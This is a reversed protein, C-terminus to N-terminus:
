QSEQLQGDPAIERSIQSKPLWIWADDVAFALRYNNMLALTFGPGFYVTEYLWRGGETRPDHTLVAAGFAQSRLGDLLPELFGPTRKELLPLEQPDLVYPHQGALVAIVANETLLPKHTDVLAIVRQFFHPHVQSDWQLRHWLPVAALFTALALAYTGFQRQALTTRNALWVTFLIVVAIQVDLLHNSSTGPSGFIIATVVIAAIFFLAPLSQVLARSWALQFLPLLALIFFVLLGRDHAVRILLGLPGSMISIWTAGGSSLAQFIDLVRGQSALIMSSAVLLYGFCTAAALEWATRRSGTTVLWLLAVAFGFVTTEKASWALAFLISALVIQKHRPKPRVIVALGWVNLASALGDPHPFTLSWQCVAPALIAGAACAALWPEVGLAKMLHFCGMLLLIVAAGSLLYASLLAPIHLKLLVADLVFYLPFYRTGGYGWPGFLPRYFVGDKLDAALTIVVGASFNVYTDKTWCGWAHLATIIIILAVSGMLAARPGFLRVWNRNNDGISVEVLQPIAAGSHEAKGM